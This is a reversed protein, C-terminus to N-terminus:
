PGVGHVKQSHRQNTTSWYITRSTYVYMLLKNSTGSYRNSVRWTIAHKSSRLWVLLGDGLWPVPSVELCLIIDGINNSSEQVSGLYIMTNVWYNMLRFKFDLLCGFLPNPFITTGGEILTAELHYHWSWCAYLAANSRGCRRPRM